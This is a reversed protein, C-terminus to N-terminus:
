KRCSAVRKGYVKCKALDVRRDIGGNSWVVSVPVGSLPARFTRQKAVVNVNYFHPARRQRRFHAIEGRTGFCQIHTATLQFCRPGQFLMTEVAGLGAGTVGIILGHQITDLLPEGFQTPDLVGRLTIRGNALDFPGATDARLRFLKPSFATSSINRGCLDGVGTGSADSQAPNFDSPCNDCVNGVGDGDADAQDANPVRPCNDSWDPVGDQDTDPSAVVGRLVDFFAGASAGSQQTNSGSAGTM